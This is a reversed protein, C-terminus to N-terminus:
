ECAAGWGPQPGVRRGAWALSPWAGVRAGLSERGGGEGRGSGGSESVYILDRNYRQQINYLIAAEHLDGLEAMDEVSDISSQHMAMVIDQTLETRYLTASQLSLPPLLPPPSPSLPLLFDGAWGCVFCLWCSFVISFYCIHTALVSVCVSFWVKTQLSIHFYSRSFVFATSHGRSCFCKFVPGGVEVIASILAHM